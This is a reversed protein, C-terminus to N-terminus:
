ATPGAKSDPTQEGAPSASQAPQASAAASADPAPKRFHLRYIISCIAAAIPGIFLGAGGFVVLGLVSSGLTVLPSLGVGRGTIIPDLVMRLVVMVIYTLGVSLAMGASGYVAALVTWPILVVGSGVVPLMDLVAVVAAIIPSWWGMGAFLMGVLLVLYNVGLMILQAKGWGLGARGIEVATQKIKQRTIDNMRIM